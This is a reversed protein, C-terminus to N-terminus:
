IADSATTQQKIMVYRTVSFPVSSGIGFQTWVPAYSDNLEIKVYSSVLNTGCGSVNTVYATTSGCRYAASITVHDQDLKTETQLIAKLTARRTESTPETALAVSSAQASAAQLEAQRAVIRSTEYSGISLSLVVPAILATELSVAGTQGALLAAFARRLNMM